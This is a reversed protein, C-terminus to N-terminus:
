PDFPVALNGLAVPTSQHALAALGLLVLHALPDAQHEQAARHFLFVLPIQLVLFVPNTSTLNSLRVLNLCM